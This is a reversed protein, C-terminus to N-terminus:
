FIDISIKPYEPYRKAVYGYFIDLWSIGLYGLIDLHYGVLIDELTIRWMDM